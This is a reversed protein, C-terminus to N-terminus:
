IPMFPAVFSYDLLRIAIALFAVCARHLVGDADVYPSVSDLFVFAVLHLSFLLM